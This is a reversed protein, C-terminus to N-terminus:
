FLRHYYDAGSEEEEWIAKWIVYLTGLVAPVLVMLIVWVWVKEEV